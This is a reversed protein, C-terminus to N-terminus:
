FAVKLADSLKGKNAFPWNGHYQVDDICWVGDKRALLVTDKWRTAKDGEGSRMMLSVEANDEDVATGGSNVEDPGEFLSSFLDGEVLPPKDDPHATRYSRQRQQADRIMAALSPCLFADYAKMSNADPLGSSGLRQHMQYFDLAVSAASQSDKADATAAVVESETVTIANPAAQVAKARHWHHFWSCGSALILLAPALVRPLALLQRKM